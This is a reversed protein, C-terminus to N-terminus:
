LSTFPHSLPGQKWTFRIGSSARLYLSSPDDNCGKCSGNSRKNKLTPAWLGHRPKYAALIPHKPTFRDPGRSSIIFKRQRANMNVAERRHFARQELRCRTGCLMHKENVGFLVLRRIQPKDGLSRQSFPNM